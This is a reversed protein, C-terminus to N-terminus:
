ESESSSVMVRKSVSSSALSISTSQLELSGLSTTASATASTTTPPRTDVPTIPVSSTIVLLWAVAVEREDNDPLSVSISCSSKHYTGAPNANSTPLIYLSFYCERKLTPHIDPNLNLHYFLM